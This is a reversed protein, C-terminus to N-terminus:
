RRKKRAGPIQVGRRLIGRFGWGDPMPLFNEEGNLGGFRVWARLILVCEEGIGTRENRGEVRISDGDKNTATLTWPGGSEDVQLRSFLEYAAGEYDLAKFMEVPQDPGHNIRYVTLVEPRLWTAKKRVM